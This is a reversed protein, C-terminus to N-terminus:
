FPKIVTVVEPRNEENIQMVVLEGPAVGAGSVAVINVFHTVLVTVGKDAQHEVMFQKLAETRRAQAARQNFFSNLGPFPQVTGLQLQNATDLCRCWESSLVQRVAIQRNRFGDGTRRAQAIGAMSLNRQTTCDRLEFNPPDGTGPAIAHRMLVYYHTEAQRLQSWIGDGSDAIAETVAPKTEQKAETVGQASITKALPGPQHTPHRSLAQPAHGCSGLCFLLSAASGILRNRSCILGQLAAM